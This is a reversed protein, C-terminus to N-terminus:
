SLNLNEWINIIHKVNVHTQRQV